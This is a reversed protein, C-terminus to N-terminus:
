LPIAAHLEKVYKAVYELPDGNSIETNLKLGVVRTNETNVEFIPFIPNYVTLIVPYINSGLLFADM